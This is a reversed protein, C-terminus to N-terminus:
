LSFCFIGLFANCLQATTTLNDDVVWGPAGGHALFGLLGHALLGIGLGGGFLVGGARLLLAGDLGGDRQDLFVVALAGDHRQAGLLGGVGGDDAGAADLEVHREAHAAE